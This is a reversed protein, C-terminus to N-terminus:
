DPKWRAHPGLKNRPAASQPRRVMDATESGPFLDVLLRTNRLRGSNPRILVGLVGGKSRACKTRSAQGRYGCGPRRDAALNSVFSLARRYALM